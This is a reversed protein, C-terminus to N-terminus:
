NYSNRVMAKRKAKFFRFSFLLSKLWDASICLSIKTSRSMCANVRLAGVVVAVSSLRSINENIKQYFLAQYKM